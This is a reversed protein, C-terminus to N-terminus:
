PNGNKAEMLFEEKALDLAKKLVMCFYDPIRAEESGNKTIAQTVLEALEPKGGQKDIFDIIQQDRPVNVYNADGAVRRKVYSDLRRRGFHTAIADEYETIFGRSLVYAEFDKFPLFFLNHAELDARNSEINAENAVYPIINIKALINAVDVVVKDNDCLMLHRIDFAAPQLLRIFPEFNQGDTSVVSIGLTDLDIKMAKAFIPLAISESPGEVLLVVKAFLFESTSRRIYRSIKSEESPSFYGKLIFAPITQRGRRKLLVIEELDAVDTALTSHSSVIIQNTAQWLHRILNRVAHPHLHAEPEEIGVMAQGYGLAKVYALLLGIISISQTGEGQELVSLSKVDGPNSILVNIQHILDRYNSPMASFSINGKVEESWLVREVFSKFEDLAQAFKADGLTLALLQSGVQEGLEAIKQQQPLDLEVLYLLRAWIGRREVLERQAERLAGVMFFPLDRRNIYMFLGDDQGDAKIFKINTRMVGQQTDFAHEIKLLVREKGDDDFDTHPDFKAHEDTSFKDGPWPRVEMIIEIKDSKMDCSHSLDEDSLYMGRRTPNLVTDLLEILSTKGTNNAGIIVTHPHLPIRTDRFRRYNKLQLESIYIM